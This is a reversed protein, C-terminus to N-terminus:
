SYKRLKPADILFFGL